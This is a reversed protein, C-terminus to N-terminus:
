TKTNQKRQTAKYSHQQNETLTKKHNNINKSVITNVSKDEEKIIHLSFCHNLRKGWVLSGCWSRIQGVSVQGHLVQGNSISVSSALGSIHLLMINYVHLVKRYVTKTFSQHLFLTLVLITGEHGLGDSIVKIAARLLVLARM